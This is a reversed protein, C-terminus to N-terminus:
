LNTAKFNKVHSINLKNYLSSINQYPFNLLALLIQNKKIKFDLFSQNWIAANARMFNFIVANFFLKHILKDMTPAITPTPKALPLSITVNKTLCPYRENNNQKVVPNKNPKNENIIKLNYLDFSEFSAVALIQWLFLFRLFVFFLMFFADVIWFLLLFILISLKNLITKNTQWIDIHLAINAPISLINSM